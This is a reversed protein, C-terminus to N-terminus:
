QDLAGDTIQLKVYYDEKTLTYTSPDLKFGYHEVEYDIGESYYYDTSFYIQTPADISTDVKFKATFHATEHNFTNEIPTGQTFMLYTRALAKVKWAELSGDPLYFGESATGASTTLDEYNKFQWYAWGALYKDATSTVQTIEQTCPGETLCAGFETIHLPLGLREADKSRTSIRKEHWALCDDARNIDPEGNPCPDNGLQCCYTHDNLVHHNSGKEGGPPVEFGVETIVGGRIGSIIDPFTAPEFWMISDPDNKQYREFVRTYMPALRQRDFNGPILLNPRKITNGPYPENLPDFGIVYQNHTLAKSTVDWYEVFKDQLNNKNLYLADFAKM